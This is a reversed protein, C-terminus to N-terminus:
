ILKEHPDLKYFERVDFKKGYEEDSKVKKIFKKRKPEETESYVEEPVTVEQYAEYQQIAEEKEKVIQTEKM